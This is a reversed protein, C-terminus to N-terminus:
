LLKTTLKVIGTPVLVMVPRLRDQRQAAQDVLARDVVDQDGRAVDVGVVQRDIGLLGQRHQHRRDGRAHRDVTVSIEGSPFTIPVAVDGLGPAGRTEAPTWLELPPM